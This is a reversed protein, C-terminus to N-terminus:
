THQENRELGWNTFFANLEKPTKKRPPPLPTNEKKTFVKTESIKEHRFIYPLTGNLSPNSMTNLPEPDM